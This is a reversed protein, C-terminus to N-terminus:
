PAATRAPSAGSSTADVIMTRVSSSGSSSGCAAGVLLAGLIPSVFFEEENTILLRAEGFFSSEIAKLEISSLLLTSFVQFGRDSASPTMERDARPSGHGDDRSVKKNERSQTEPSLRAM